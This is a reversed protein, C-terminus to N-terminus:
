VVRNQRSRGVIVMSGANRDHLCQRAPDWMLWALNHLALPPLLIQASVTLARRLTDARGLSRGDWVSVPEIRLLRKGPTGGTLAALPEYLMALPVAVAAASILTSAGATRAILYGATAIVIALAADVSRAAIRSPRSALGAWSARWGSAASARASGLPAMGLAAPRPAPRAAAGRTSLQHGTSFSFYYNSAKKRQHLYFLEERSCEPCRRWISYPTLDVSFELSGDHFAVVAGVDLLTHCSLRRLPFPETPGTLIDLEALYTSTQARCNLIRGIRVRLLPAIGDLIATVGPGLEQMAAERDARLRPKGGHAYVNRVQNYTEIAPLARSAALQVARALPDHPQDKMIKVASRIMSTWKSLTIGGSDLKKEWERMGAPQIDHARCWGLALVGLTTATLEVFSQADEVQDAPSEAISLLRAPYAIPFPYRELQLRDM